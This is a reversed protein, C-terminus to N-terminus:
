ASPLNDVETDTLEAVTMILAVEESGHLSMDDLEAELMFGIARIVGDKDSLEGCYAAPEGSQNEFFVRKRKANPDPIAAQAIELHTMLEEIREDRANVVGQLESIEALSARGAAILLYIAFFMCAFVVFVVVTMM